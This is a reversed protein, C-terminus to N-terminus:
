ALLNPVPYISCAKNQHAGNKDLISYRDGKRSSVGVIQCIGRSTVFIESSQTSKQWHWSNQHWLPLNQWFNWLCFTNMVFNSKWSFTCKPRRVLSRPLLTSLRSWGPTWIWRHLAATAQGPTVNPQCFPAPSQVPSTGQRDRVPRWWCRPESHSWPWCWTLSDVSSRQIAATLCAMKTSKGGM